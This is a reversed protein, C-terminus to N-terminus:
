LILTKYEIKVGDLKKEIFKEISWDRLFGEWKKVLTKFEEEDLHSNHIDHNMVNLWHPNIVINMEESSKIMFDKYASEVDDCDVDWVSKVYNFGDCDTKQKIYVM